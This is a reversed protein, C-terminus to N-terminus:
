PDTPGHWLNPPRQNPLASFPGYEVDGTVPYGLDGLVPQKAHHSRWSAIILAASISQKLGKEALLHCLVGPLALFDLLVLQAFQKTTLLAPCFDPVQRPIVRLRAFRLRVEVSPEITLHLVVSAM